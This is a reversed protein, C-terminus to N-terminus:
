YHNAYVDKKGCSVLIPMWVCFKGGCSRMVNFLHLPIKHDLSIISDNLAFSQRSLYGSLKFKFIYPALLKRARWFSHLNLKQCISPISHWRVPFNASVYQDSTYDVYLKSSPVTTAFDSENHRSTVKITQICLKFM